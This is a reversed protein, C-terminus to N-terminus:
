RLTLVRRVTGPDPLSAVVFAAVDGTRVRSWSWTTLAEGAEVHGTAPGDALVPPRVITWDLDSARVLEDAVAHDAFAPALQSCAVLLRFGWGARPASDGVGQASIKVLRRVGAGAMADLLRRTSRSHLDTPGVTAAFPSRSTRPISLAVIVADVGGVARDLVGDALVDGGESRSLVRVGHGAAQLEEM